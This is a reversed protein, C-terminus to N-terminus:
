YPTPERDAHTTQPNRATSQAQIVTQSNRRVAKCAKLPLQALAEGHLLIQGATPKDLRMLLRATTSKGCGSKGVLGLTEGKYLKLDIGDVAQVAGVDLGRTPQSALLFKLGPRSLERALM